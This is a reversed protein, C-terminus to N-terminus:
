PFDGTPFPHSFLPADTDVLAQQRVPRLRLIPRGVRWVAEIIEREATEKIAGSLCQHVDMLLEFCRIPVARRVSDHSPGREGQSM